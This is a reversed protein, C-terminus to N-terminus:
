ILYNGHVKVIGGEDVGAHQVNTISEDASAFKMESKDSAPASQPASVTLSNRPARLQKAAIEKLYKALEADSHFATMTRPTEKAPAAAHVTPIQTSIEVPHTSCSVGLVLFGLGIASALSRKM